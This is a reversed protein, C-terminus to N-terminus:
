FEYIFKNQSNQTQTPTENVRDREGGVQSKELSHEHEEHLRVVTFLVLDNETYSFGNWGNM